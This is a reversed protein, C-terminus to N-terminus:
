DEEESLDVGRRWGVVHDAEKDYVPTWATHNEEELVL